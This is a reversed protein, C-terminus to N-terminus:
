IGNEYEPLRWAYKIIFLICIIEVAAFFVYSPTTSGGGIIFVVTLIGAVLNTWRSAKAKLVWSLFIMMISIELFISFILFVAQNLEFGVDGRIIKELAGPHLFGIIDAFVMNFMVVVWLFSIKLKAYVTDATRISMNENM